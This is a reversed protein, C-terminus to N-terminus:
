ILENPVAEESVLDKLSQRSKLNTVENVHIKEHLIQGFRLCCVVM